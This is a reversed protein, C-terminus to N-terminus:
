PSHMALQGSWGLDLLQYTTSTSTLWFQCNEETEPELQMGEKHGPVAVLEIRVQELHADHGEDLLYPQLQLVVAWTWCSIPELQMGEKHGPVSVMKGGVAVWHSIFYTNFHASGALSYKTGDGLGELCETCADM